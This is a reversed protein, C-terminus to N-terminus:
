SNQIVVSGRWTSASSELSVAGHGGVIGVEVAAGDVLAVGEPGLLGPQDVPMPRGLRDAVVAVRREGPPEGVAGGVQAVVRDVPVQGRARLLVRQHGDGGFGIGLAGVGVGLQVLFHLAHGGAQLRQAHALAVAHQDVHGHNGLRREGHQRACADPGDMRHHETPERRRRQSRADLVGLGRHDHAGIRARAAALHHGVLRQQVLGDFQRGVLGRGHQQHVPAERGGGHARAAVVVPRCQARPVHIRLHRADPHVGRLGAVGQVGAAGGALGLAHLAVRAAVGHRQRGAHAVDELCLRAVGIEAGAVDAPHHAVAVDDVTRQNGAHGSDQVFAQRHPGVRADPPHM